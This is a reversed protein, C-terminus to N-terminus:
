IFFLIVVFRFTDGCILIFIYSCGRGFRVNKGIRWFDVFEFGERFYVISSELGLVFVFRM